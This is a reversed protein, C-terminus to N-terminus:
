YDQQLQYAGDFMEIRFDSEGHFRRRVRVHGVVKPDIAWLERQQLVRDVPQGKRPASWGRSPATCYARATLRAIRQRDTDKPLPEIGSVFPTIVAIPSKELMLQWVDPHHANRSGHHPVKFVQARGQPRTNSALIARWGRDSATDSQLDSGLLVRFDGVQLFLAVAVDNAQQRPLHNKQSNIAPIMGAFEQLSRTISASSPSLSWLEVPVSDGQRQFLRTDEQAYKISGFPTSTRSVKRSKLISFIRSIEAVDSSMAMLEGAQEAVRIFEDKRLAVSCCFKANIAAELLAAAGGMHDDHWHTVIFVCVSGPIDLGLRSLYSLAIPQKTEPALCSDVVVWQGDGIHIIICEGVGPGFLSLEFEDSQPLIDNTTV